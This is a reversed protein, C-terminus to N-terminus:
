NMKKRRERPLLKGPSSFLIFQTNTMTKVARFMISAHDLGKATTNKFTFHQYISILFFWGPKMIYYYIIYKQSVVKKSLSCGKGPRCICIDHDVYQYEQKGPRSYYYLVLFCAIKDEQRGRM